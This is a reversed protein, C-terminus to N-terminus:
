LRFSLHKAAELGLSPSNMLFALLLSVHFFHLIGMLLWQYTTLFGEPASDTCKYSMPGPHDPVDFSDRQILIHIRNRRQTTNHKCLQNTLISMPVTMIHSMQELSEKTLLWLLHKVVKQGVQLAQIQM